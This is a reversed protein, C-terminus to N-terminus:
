QGAGPDRDGRGSGPSGTGGSDGGALQQRDRERRLLSRPLRNRELLDTIEQDDLVEKFESCRQRDRELCWRRYACRICPKATAM